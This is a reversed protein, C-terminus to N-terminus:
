EKTLLTTDMPEESENLGIFYIQRSNIIKIQGRVKKLLTKGDCQECIIEIVIPEKDLLLNYTWIFENLDPGAELGKTTKNKDNSIYFLRKEQTLTMGAKTSDTWNGYFFDAKIKEKKSESTQACGILTQGLLITTLYLIRRM